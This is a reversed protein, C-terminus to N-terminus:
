NVTELVKPASKGMAPEGKARLDEKVGVDDKAWRIAIEALGDLVQNLEAGRCTLSYTM